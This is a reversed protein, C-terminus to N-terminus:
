RLHAEVYRTLGQLTPVISDQGANWDAPCVDGHEEHFQIADLMRLTEVVSRGYPTDNVVCHRVIGDKDMLFLGRLAISDNLM